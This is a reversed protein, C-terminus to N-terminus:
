KKHFKNGPLGHLVLGHQGISHLRFRGGKIIIEEGIEFVPGQKGREMIEDELKQIKELNKPTAHKSALDKYAEPLEHMEGTELNQM